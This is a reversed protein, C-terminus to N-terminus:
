GSSNKLFRSYTLRPTFRGFNTDFSYQVSTELYESVKVALNVLGRTASIPYGNEDRQIVKENGAILEPHTGTFDSADAIKDTFDTRSWDVTWRLGPISEPRWDIGLSLSTRM